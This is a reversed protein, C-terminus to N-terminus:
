PPVLCISQFYHSRENKAWHETPVIHGAISSWNFRPEYSGRRETRRECKEQSCGNYFVLKFSLLLWSKSFNAFISKIQNITKQGTLQGLILWFSSSLERPNSKIRIHSWLMWHTQCKPSSIHIHLIRLLVIMWLNKEIIGWDMLKHIAHPLQAAAKHIQSPGPFGGTCGSIIKSTRYSTKNEIFHRSQILHIISLLIM